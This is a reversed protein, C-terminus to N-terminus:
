RCCTASSFLHHSSMFLNPIKHNPTTPNEAKRQPYFGLTLTAALNWQFNKTVESPIWDILGVLFSNLEAAIM